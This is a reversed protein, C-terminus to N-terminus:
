LHLCWLCLLHCPWLKLKLFLCYWLQSKCFSHLDVWGSLQSFKCLKRLFHFLFFCYTSSLYNNCWNVSTSHFVVWWVIKSLVNLIQPDSFCNPYVIALLKLSWLSGKYLWIVPVMYSLHSQWWVSGFKCSSVLTWWSNETFLLYLFLLWYQM